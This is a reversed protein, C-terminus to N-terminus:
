PWTGNRRQAGIGGEQEAPINSCKLLLIGCVAIQPSGGHSMDMEILTQPQTKWAATFIKILADLDTHDGNQHVLLKELERAPDGAGIETLDLGDGSLHAVPDNFGAAVLFPSFDSEAVVADLRLGIEPEHM